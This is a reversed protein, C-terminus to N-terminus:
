LDDKKTPRNQLRLLSAKDLAALAESNSYKDFNLRVKFSKNGDSMTEEILDASTVNWGDEDEISMATTGEFIKGPAEKQGAKGNRALRADSALKTLTAQLEHLNSGELKHTSITRETM